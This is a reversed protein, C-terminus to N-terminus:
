PFAVKDVEEKFRGALLGDYFAYDVGKVKVQGAYRQHDDPDMLSKGEAILQHGLASGVYPAYYALTIIPDKMRRVMQVTKFADERTEGPIALMINAWFRPRTRGQQELDDGIRNVLDITFANDEATCEKNLTELVANSGSEFGISITNWNTERVLQEFLEPWKRVTDARGAAWYPWVKHAKKPYKELWDRIYAPGQFFMSDHLVVSGLPGYRDDLDNLEDIVDDVPRREMNRIYSAESCFSCAWPCVRSTLTTAVPSPGWGCTLELPYTEAQESPWVPRPWLTRDLRPWDAMRKSPPGEFIKPFSNPNTVLDCIVKEGPGRCIHDFDKVAEMEQPAVDTHMGGVLVLGKPNLSKFLSAAKKAPGFRYSRVNMILTEYGKLLLAVHEWSRCLRTSAIETLIGNQHLITRLLGQGHDNWYSDIANPPHDGMLGGFPGLDLFLIRSRM